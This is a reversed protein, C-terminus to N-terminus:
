LQRLKSEEVVGNRFEESLLKRLEEKLNIYNDLMLAIDSDNLFYLNIGSKFTILRAIRPTAKSLAYSILFCVDTTSLAEDKLDMLFEIIKENKAVIAECILDITVNIHTQSAISKLLDVRDSKEKCVVYVLTPLDSVDLIDIITNFVAISINPLVIEPINTYIGFFAKRVEHIALQKVRDLDESELIEIIRASM